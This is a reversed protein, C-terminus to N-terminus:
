MVAGYVTTCVSTLDEPTPGGM